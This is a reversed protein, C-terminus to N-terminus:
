IIFHPVANSFQRANCLVRHHNPSRMAHCTSRCNPTHDLAFRLVLRTNTITSPDEPRRCPMHCHADSLVIAGRTPQEAHRRGRVSLTPRQHPAYGLIRGLRTKQRQAAWFSCIKPWNPGNKQRRKVLSPVASTM